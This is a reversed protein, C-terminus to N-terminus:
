GGSPAATINFVSGELSRFYVPGEASILSDLYFVPDEECGEYAELLRIELEAQAKDRTTHRFLACSEHGGDLHGCVIVVPWAREDSM